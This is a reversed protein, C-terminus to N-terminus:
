VSAMKLQGFTNHRQLGILETIHTQLRKYAHILSILRVQMARRLAVNATLRFCANGYPTPVAWSSKMWGASPHRAIPKSELHIRRHTVNCIKRCSHCKVSTRRTSLSTALPSSPLLGFSRNGCEFTQCSDQRRLTQAQIVRNRLVLPV